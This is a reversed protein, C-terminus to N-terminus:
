LSKGNENENENENGNGNGVEYQLRNEVFAQVLEIDFNKTFVKHDTLRYQKIKEYAEDFGKQTPEAEFISFFEVIDKLEDQKDKNFRKFKLEGMFRVGKVYNVDIVMDPEFSTPIGFIAYQFRELRDLWDQSEVDQESDLYRQKFDKLYEELKTKDGNIFNNHSHYRESLVHKIRWMTERLVDSQQEYVESSPSDISSM